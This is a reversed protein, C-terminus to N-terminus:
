YALAQQPLKPEIKAVLNKIELVLTELPKQKEKEMDRKTKGDEGPRDVEPQGDRKKSRGFKDIVESKGEQVDKVRQAFESGTEKDQKSLGLSKGIDYMSRTDRGSGEGRISSEVESQRIQEATRKALEFQGKQIQKEARQQLRGGKDISQQSEAEAISKLISASKSLEKNMGAQDQRARAIEDAFSKAEPQGMGADIAQKLAANYDKKYQVAKQEQENGSIKAKLSQLDLELNERLDSQREAEKAASEKEKEVRVTKINNIQEELKKSLDLQKNLDGIGQTQEDIKGAISDAYSYNSELLPTTGTIESNFNSWASSIGDIATKFDSNLNFASGIEAGTEKAKEGLEEIKGTSTAVTTGVDKQSASLDEGRKVLYSMAFGFPTYYKFADAMMQNFGDLSTTVGRYASGLIGTDNAAKTNANSIDGLASAAGKTANTLDQILPTLYEGVRQGFGAADVKEMSAGLGGVAPIVESLIGAAFAAMKGKVADITEGAADFTAANENMVRELSGVKGRADALAPSFDTLLPLLKGGLKDGFVESAMAARQTPDEIAAIKDAFVKMQETPTKGKLEALSIGLDTMATAQKDGGNAADQMFNQLKNIVTGVMEAGLGANKFATELVLLKGAAEGTRASLDTLRGGLDLADGFGRAVSQAGSFALNIAKNFGAAAINGLTFAGTIKAFSSDFLGGANESKNGVDQLEKGLRDIKPATDSASDGMSRLKKEMGELQKTRSLTKQFEDASMATTRQQTDLEALEKQVNKLTQSLGADKAGFEVTVDAM